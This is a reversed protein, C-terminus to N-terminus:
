SGTIEIGCHGEKNLISFAKRNVYIHYKTVTQEIYSTEDTNDTNLIKTLILMDNCIQTM